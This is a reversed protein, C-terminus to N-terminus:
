KFGLNTSQKSNKFNWIIGNITSKALHIKNKLLYQVVQKVSAILIFYAYFLSTNLRGTNRRIFLMRNRTMFYTKLRSEKGVSISEKHYIHTNGIFWISKGARKFKECWDLEEYYLFYNEPMLGVSELDAKRCMMAAGHCYGTARDDKSYQNENGEGGGISRNRCTLFNMETFGAYQIINPDDYFLILPSLLGITSDSEMKDVMCDIFNPTIEVDNNLFLLYKNNAAAIGLNNGGAFGLNQESRIYILEPFIGKYEEAFEKESGNDVFIVELENSGAHEIISKLFDINVQYQNYNVTIISVSRMKRLNLFDEKLIM